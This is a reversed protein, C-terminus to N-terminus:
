RRAGGQDYRDQFPQLRACLEMGLQAEAAEVQERAQRVQPNSLVFSIVKEAEAFASTRVYRRVAEQVRRDEEHAAM